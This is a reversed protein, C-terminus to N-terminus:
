RVKPSRIIFAADRLYAVLFNAIDGQLPGIVRALWRNAASNDLAMMDLKARILEGTDLEVCEFCTKAESVIEKMSRYYCRDRLYADRRIASKLASLRHSRADHILGLRYLLQLYRVRARGPPILHAYPARMHGGIPQTVLAFNTLLVGSPVLVRACESMIRELFRVHEFVSNAYIIHFSGSDFPITQEDNAIRVRDDYSDEFHKSMRRRLVEARRPLDYGCIEHGYDLLYEMTTGDGCGLDLVRLRQGNSIEHLKRAIYLTTPSNWAKDHANIHPNMQALVESNESQWSGDTFM